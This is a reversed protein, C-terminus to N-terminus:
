SGAPTAPTGELAAAVRSVCAAILRRAAILEDATAPAIGLCLVVDDQPAPLLGMTRYDLSRLSPAGQRDPAFRGFVGLEGRGPADTKLAFLAATAELAPPSRVLADPDVEKSVADSLLRLCGRVFEADTIVLGYLYWDPCARQVLRAQAETLWTYSPCLFSECTGSDYVGCDRLDVGGTMTPHGLCGVRKRDPDVFGLLTCVRVDPFMPTPARLQGAARTFQEPDHALPTLQETQRRLVSEVEPRHHDLMNYLGCCAGCSPSADPQCLRLSV